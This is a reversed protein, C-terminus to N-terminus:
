RTIDGKRWPTRREGPALPGGGKERAKAVRRADLWGEMFRRRWAQSKGVAFDKGLKDILRGVRLGAQYAEADWPALDPPLDGVPPVWAGFAVAAREVVTAM